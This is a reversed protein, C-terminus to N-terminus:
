SRRAWGRALNCHSNPEAFHLQLACGCIMGVDAVCSQASRLGPCGAGRVCAADRASRYHAAAMASLSMFPNGACRRSTTWLAWTSCRTASTWSGSGARLSTFCGRHGYRRVGNACSVAYSRGVRALHARSACVAPQRAKPPGRRPRAARRDGGQRVRCGGPARPAALHGKAPRPTPNCRPLPACQLKHLRLGGRELHDKVRGPTGVVVDLGRRLAGEQPGYPSGGYLCATALSAAQGIHEFDAHVQAAARARHARPAGARRHQSM